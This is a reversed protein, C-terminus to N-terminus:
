QFLDPGFKKTLWKDLLINGFLISTKIKNEKRTADETSYFAILSKLLNKLQGRSVSQRYKASLQRWYFSLGVCSHIAQLITHSACIEQSSTEPLDLLLYQVDYLEVYVFVHWIENVVNSQHAMPASKSSNFVWSTRKWKKAGSRLWPTFNNFTKFYNETTITTGTAEIQEENWAQNRGDIVNDPFSSSGIPVKLPTPLEIPAEERTRVTDYVPIGDGQNNRARLSIVYESNPEM